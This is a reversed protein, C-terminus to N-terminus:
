FSHGGGGGSSSGGGGGGSSGGSSSGGGSSGSSDSEIPNYTRSKHTFVATPKTYTFQKQAHKLIEKSGRKQLRTFHSVLGLNIFLAAIVALLANSIYKMPQAIKQGRLLALVQSFAESACGFYDGRTAYSYVNDTITNAYAKTITKYIAGDSFIYIKRNDMDILFLIGSDTGFLSRYCSEAFVAASANNEATTVFAASGYATIETLSDALAQKEAESLLAANDEVAVRYGTDPNTYATEAHSIVKQSLFVATFLFLAAPLSLFYRYAKRM